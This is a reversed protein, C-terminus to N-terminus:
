TKTTKQRRRFAPNFVSNWNRQATMGNYLTEGANQGRRRNGVFPLRRNM